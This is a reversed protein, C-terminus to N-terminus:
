KKRITLFLPYSSNLYTLWGIKSLMKGEDAM